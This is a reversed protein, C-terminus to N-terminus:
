RGNQLKILEEKHKEKLDKLAKIKKLEETSLKKVDFREVHQKLLDNVLGSINAGRFKLERDIEEDICVMKHVKM